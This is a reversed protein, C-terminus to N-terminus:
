YAVYVSEYGTEQLRLAALRGRERSRTLLIVPEDHRLHAARLAEDVENSFQVRFQLRSDSLGVPMVAGQAAAEMVPIHADVRAGAELGYSERPTGIDVLLARGEFRDKLAVVDRARMYHNAPVCDPVRCDARVAAPGEVPEATSVSYVVFSLSLVGSTAVLFFQLRQFPTM